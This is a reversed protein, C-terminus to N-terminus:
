CALVTTSYCIEVTHQYYSRVHISFMCAAYIFYRHLGKHVGSKPVAVKDPHVAEHVVNLPEEVFHRTYVVTPFLSDQRTIIIQQESMGRCREWQPGCWTSLPPRLNFLHAKKYSIAQFFLEFPFCSLGVVFSGTCLGCLSWTIIYMNWTRVPLFLSPVNCYQALKVVRLLAHM